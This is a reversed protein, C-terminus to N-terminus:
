RIRKIEATDSDTKRQKEEALRTSQAIEEKYKDLEKYWSDLQQKFDSEQKDMTYELPDIQEM